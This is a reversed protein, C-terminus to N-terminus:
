NHRDAQRIQHIRGQSSPLFISHRESGSITDTQGVPIFRTRRSVKILEKIVDLKGERALFHLVTEETDLNYPEVLKEPSERWKELFEARFHITQPVSNLLHALVSKTM